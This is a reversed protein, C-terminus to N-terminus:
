QIVLPERAVTRQGSLLLCSVEVTWPGAAADPRVTWAWAAYGNGDTGKTELSDVDVRGSPGSRALTCTAYGATTVTAVADGGRRVPTTVRLTIDDAARTTDLKIGSPSPAVTGAAVTPAAAAASAPQPSASPGPVSAASCAAAIAMAALGAAVPRMAGARTSLRM